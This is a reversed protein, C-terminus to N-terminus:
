RPSGADRRVVYGAVGTTTEIRLAAAWVSFWCGGLAAVQATSQYVFPLAGELATPVDEPIGDLYTATQWAVGTLTEGEKKRRSRASPTAISSCCTTRAGTDPHWCSSACQSVV